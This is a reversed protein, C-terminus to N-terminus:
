GITLSDDAADVITGEVPRVPRDRSFPFGHLPEGEDDAEGDGKCDGAGERALRM